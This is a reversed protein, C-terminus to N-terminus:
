ETGSSTSRYVRYATIPMGGNSAPPTGPPSVTTNDAPANTPTPASQVAFPPPTIENSRAGEGLATVAAAKYSSPAGNALGTDGYTTVNGVTTLLTEAGAATSRYVRYNTIPSGGNSSPANWVLAVTGNGATAIVLTPAGPVTTAAAPTASMENSRV